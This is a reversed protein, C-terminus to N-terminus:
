RVVRAKEKGGSRDTKSTYGLARSIELATDAVKSGLEAAASELISETTGFVSVSGVSLGNPNAALLELIDFTRDVSQVTMQIM